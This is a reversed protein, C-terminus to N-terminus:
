PVPKLVLTPDVTAKEPMLKNGEVPISILRKGDLELALIMGSVQTPDTVKELSWIDKPSDPSGASPGANALGPDAPPTKEKSDIWLLTSGNALALDLDDNEAPKQPRIVQLKALPGKGDGFTITGLIGAQYQAQDDVGAFAAWRIQAPRANPFDAWASIGVPGPGTSQFLHQGTGLLRVHHTDASDCCGPQTTAFYLDAIVAGDAGPDKFSALRKATAGQMDDVTVSVSAKPDVQEQDTRLDQDTAVTVLRFHTAGSDDMSLYPIFRTNKVHAAYSGDANKTVMASSSAKADLAEAAAPALLMGAILMGLLIHKM